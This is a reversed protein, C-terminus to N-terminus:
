HAYQPEREASHLAAWMPPEFRSPAVVPDGRQDESGGLIFHAEAGPYYPDLLGVDSNGRRLPLRSGTM